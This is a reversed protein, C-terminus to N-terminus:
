LPCSAREEPRMTKGFTFNLDVIGLGCITAHSDNGVLVSFTHAVHYYSFMSIDACVHVNAGIDFWWEPSHCVSLIALFIDYRADKM